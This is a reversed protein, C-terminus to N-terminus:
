VEGALEPRPAPPELQDTAGREAIAVAGAGLVGTGLGFTVANVLLAAVPLSAASLSILLGGVAGIPFGLLFARRRTILRSSGAGLAIAGATLLGAFGGVPITFASMRVITTLSPLTGAAIAEVGVILWGILHFGIAGLAGIGLAGRVRKLLGKM